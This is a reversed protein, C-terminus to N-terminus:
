SPHKRAEHLMRQMEEVKAELEAETLIATWGADGGASGYQYGAEGHWGDHWAGEILCCKWNREKAAESVALMFEGMDWFNDEPTGFTLIELWNERNALFSLQPLESPMEDSMVAVEFCLNEVLELADVSDTSPLAHFGYQQLVSALGKAIGQKPHVILVTPAYKM